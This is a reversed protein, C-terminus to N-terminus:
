IGVCLVFNGYNFSYQSVTIKEKLVEDQTDTGSRVLGESSTGHALKELKSELNDRGSSMVM